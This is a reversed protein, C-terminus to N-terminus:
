SKRHKKKNHKDNQNRRKKKIKTKNNEPRNGKSHNCQLMTNKALEKCAKRNKWFINKAENQAAKQKNTKSHSYSLVGNKAAEKCLIM